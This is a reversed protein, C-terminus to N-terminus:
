QAAASQLAALSTEIIGGNLRILVPKHRNRLSLLWSRLVIASSDTVVVESANRCSVSAWLPNETDLTIAFVGVALIYERAADLSNFTACFDGYYNYLNTACM